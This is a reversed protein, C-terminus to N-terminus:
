RKYFTRDAFLAYYILDVEEGQCLYHRSRRGDEVMGESEAIRQMPINNSLTGCTVKRAGLRFSEEIALSFAHSGYGMNHCEGLLIAIDATKNNEDFDIDINGIHKRDVEIAYLHERSLVYDLCSKLTHVYHRQESYKTIEPDNLWSVYNETLHEKSFPIIDLM